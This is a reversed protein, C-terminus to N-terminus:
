HKNKIRNKIKLIKNFLIQNNLQYFYFNIFIQLYEKCMSNKHKIKIFYNDISVIKFYLNDLYLPIDNDYCYYLFEIQEENM